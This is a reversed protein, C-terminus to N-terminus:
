PNLSPCAWIESLKLFSEKLDTPLDKEIDYDDWPGCLESKRSDSLRTQWFVSCGSPDTGPNGVEGDLYVERDHYSKLCRVFYADPMSTLSSCMAENIGSGYSGKNVKERCFDVNAQQVMELAFSPSASFQSLVLGISILVSYSSM